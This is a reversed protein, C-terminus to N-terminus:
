LIEADKDLGSSILLGEDLQAEGPDDDSRNDDNTIILNPLQKIKLMEAEEKCKNIIDMVSKNVPSINPASYSKSSKAYDKNRNLQKKTVDFESIEHLADIDGLKSIEKKYTKLLTNSKAMSPDSRIGDIIARLNDAELDLRDYEVQASEKEKQHEAIELVHITLYEEDGGSAMHNILQDKNKKLEAVHYHINEKCKRQRYKINFLAEEYQQITTNNVNERIPQKKEESLFNAMGFSLLLSELPHLDKKPVNETVYQHENRPPAPPTYVLTENAAVRVPPPKLKTKYLYEDKYVTGKQTQPAYYTNPPKKNMKEM